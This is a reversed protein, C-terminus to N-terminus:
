DLSPRYDITFFPDRRHFPAGRFPCSWVPKGDLSAKLAFSTMPALAYHWAAASADRRAEVLLLMEPDTGVVFAFVAGDILEDDPPREGASEADPKAYRYVPRSLLRLQWLNGVNGYDDSAAFRRALARMQSLRQAATKAPTAAGALPKFGVGAMQPTWVTQRDRKLLFLDVSLSQFEHLWRNGQDVSFAQAIAVPHGAATWLFLTGDDNGEINSWRLLPEAELVVKARPRKAQSGERSTRDADAGEALECGYVAVSKKMFELREAAPPKVADTDQAAAEKVQEDSAYTAAALILTFMPSLM